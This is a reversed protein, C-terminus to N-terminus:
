QGHLESLKEQKMLLVIWEGDKTEDQFIIYLTTGLLPNILLILWFVFSKLNVDLVILQLLTIILITFSFSLIKKKGIKKINVPFNQIKILIVRLAKSIAFMPISLIKKIIDKIKIKKRM